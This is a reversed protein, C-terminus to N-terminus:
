WEMEKLLEDLASQIREDASDKLSLFLSLRDVNGGQALLNPDYKWLEIEFADMESFPLELIWERQVREKWGKAQLAFVPISPEVLMTYRAIASQGALLIDKTNMTPAVYIRKGVPTNLYPLVNEWLPKGMEAFNLQRLKGRVAIEGIGATELEDFARTMAMASYGLSHAIEGPTITAVTNHSLVYLILAQTSPGFLARKERLRTLHERLDIGLMPLYMQNGPVIFPITQEILRKRNYSTVRNRVYIPQVTHRTRVQEMHKGIVAPTQEGEETDAMIVCETGLFDLDFFRYRDRLYQPLAKSKEWPRPAVSVGLTEQLYQKLEDILKHMNTM